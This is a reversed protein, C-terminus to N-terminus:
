RRPRDAFWARLAAMARPDAIIPAAGDPSVRLRTVLSTAM